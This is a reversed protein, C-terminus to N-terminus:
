HRCQGLRTQRPSRRLHLLAGRLSDHRPLAALSDHRPLVLSHRTLAAGRRVPGECLRQLALRALLADSLNGFQVGGHRRALCPACAILM